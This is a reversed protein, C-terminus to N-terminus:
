TNRRRRVAARLLFFVVGAVVALIGVGVVIESINGFTAGGHVMDSYSRTSLVSGSGTRTQCHDGPSM